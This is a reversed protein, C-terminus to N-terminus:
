RVLPENLLKDIKNDINRLEKQYDFRFDNCQLLDRNAQAVVM